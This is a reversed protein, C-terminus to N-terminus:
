TSKTMKEGSTFVIDKSLKHVICPVNTYKKAGFYTRSTMLETVHRLVELFNTDNNELKGNGYFHEVSQYLNKLLYSGMDENRVGYHGQPSAFMVLMDNHCPVTTIVNKEQSLRVAQPHHAVDGSGLSNAQVGIDPNLKKGQSHHNIKSGGCSGKGVDSQQDVNIGHDFGGGPKSADTLSNRCAQIFFLKPKGRLAKCKQYSFYELIQGTSYYEGDFMQVAHDRVTFGRAKDAEEQEHGHTSIAFVFCDFDKEALVRSTDSLIREFESTCLNKYSDVQFGLLKFTNEMFEVDKM